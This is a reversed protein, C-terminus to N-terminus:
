ACDPWRNICSPPKCFEEYSKLEERLFAPVRPEKTQKHQRRFRGSEQFEMLVRLCHRIQNQTWTLDRTNGPSIGCSSLFDVEIERLRMHLPAKANVFRFLPDWAREFYRRTRQSYGLEELHELASKIIRDLEPHRHESQVQSM